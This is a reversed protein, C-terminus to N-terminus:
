AAEKLGPNLRRWLPILAAALALGGLVDVAYHYRCYVTAVMLSVVLPGLWWVSPRAYRWGYYLVVVALAVHSSPFAAGDIEGHRYILQMLATFPGSGPVDDLIFSRAGVVPLLIFLLYCTYMTACATFMYDNFAAPWRRLFLFLGMGFIMLYYSFYAFHLYESLWPQPFWQALVVAPQVGFLGAELRQFWPDLFGTFVMHNIVGTQMYMFIFLVPPYLHRVLRAGLARREGLAYVVLLVAGMMLLNPALRVPWDPIRRHCLLILALVLGNYALTLRDVLNLAAAKV